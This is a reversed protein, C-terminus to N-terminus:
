KATSSSILNREGYTAYHQRRWKNPKTHYILGMFLLLSVNSIKLGKKAPTFGTPLSAAPSCAVSIQARARSQNLSRNMHFMAVADNALCGSSVRWRTCKNAGKPSYKIRYNYTTRLITCWKVLISSNKYTIIQVCEPYPYKSKAGNFPGAEQRDMM